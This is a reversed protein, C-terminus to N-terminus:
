PREELRMPGEGTALWEWRVGAVGALTRITSLRPMDTDGRLLRILSQRKKDAAFAFERTSRVGMAERLRAPFGPPSTVRPNPKRTRNLTMNTVM